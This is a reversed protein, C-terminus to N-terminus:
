NRKLMMEWNGNTREIEEIKVDIKRLRDLSEKEESELFVQRTIDKGYNNHIIKHHRLSFFATSINTM